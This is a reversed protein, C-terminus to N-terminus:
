KTRFGSDGWGCKGCRHRTAARGKDFFRTIARMIATLMKLVANIFVPFGHVFMALVIAGIVILWPIGLMSLSGLLEAFWAKEEKPMAAETEVLREPDPTIQEDGVIIIEDPVMAVTYKIVFHAYSNIPIIETAYRRFLDKKTLILAGSRLSPSSRGFAIRILDEDPILFVL